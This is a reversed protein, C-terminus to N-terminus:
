SNGIENLVRELHKIFSGEADFFRRAEAEKEGRFGPDLLSKIARAISLPDEPDCNVIGGNALQHYRLGPFDPLVTPVGAGAFEYIRTPACYVQNISTPRYLGIGIDAQSLVTLHAPPTRTPITVVRGEVGAARIHDNLVEEWDPRKSSGPMVALIVDDPLHAFAAVLERLCRRSDHITGQYLVITMGDAHLRDLTEDAKADPIDAPDHLPTNPLFLPRRKLNGLFYTIWARNVEPMVTYDAQRCFKFNRPNFEHVHYIVPPNFGALKAYESYRVFDWNAMWVYDYRGRNEKMLHFLARYTRASALARQSRSGFVPYDNDSVTFVHVSSEDFSQRVDDPINYVLLDVEHGLQTLGQVVSIVPALTKPNRRLPIFFKM